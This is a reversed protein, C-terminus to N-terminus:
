EACAARSGACRDAHAAGAIVRADVDGRADLLELHVRLDIRARPDNLYWGVGIRHRQIFQSRDRRERLLLVLSISDLRGENAFILRSRRM